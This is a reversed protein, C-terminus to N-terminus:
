VVKYDKKLRVIASFHVYHLFKKNVNKSRQSADKQERTKLYKIMHFYSAM